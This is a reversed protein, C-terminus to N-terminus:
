SRLGAGLLHFAQNRVLPDALAPAGDLDFLAELDMVEVAVPLYGELRQRLEEANAMPALYIRSLPLWSFQREFYDVSRQAEMAVREYLAPGVAGRGDTRRSYVLAEGFSFTLLSHQGDFHLVGIAYGEPMLRQAIQHQATERIDIVELPLEAEQFPQALLRVSTAQAAVVYLSPIRGEVAPIPLYDLVADDSHFNILDRVKWTLAGRLEDEPVSPAEVVLTQYAGPDLLTILRSSGLGAAQALRRWDEANRPTAQSIAAGAVRPRPGSELRLAGAGEHLVSIVAYDSQAKSTRFWSM